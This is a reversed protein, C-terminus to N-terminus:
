TGAVIVCPGLEVPVDLTEYDLPTIGRTCALTTIGDVAFVEIVLQVGVQFM